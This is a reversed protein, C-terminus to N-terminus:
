DPAYCWIYLTDGLFNTARNRMSVVLLETEWSGGAVSHWQLRLANPATFVTKKEVPLVGSQLQVTSPFVSRGSSYYYYDSTISNDFVVHNYYDSPTVAFCSTALLALCCGLRVGLRLTREM